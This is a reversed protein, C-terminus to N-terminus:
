FILNRYPKILCRLLLVNKEDIKILTKSFVGGKSYSPYTYVHVKKGNIYEPWPRQREIRQKEMSKYNLFLLIEIIIFAAIIICFFYIWFTLPLILWNPNYVIISLQFFIAILFIVCAIVFFFKTIKLYRVKLSEELLKLNFPKHVPPM